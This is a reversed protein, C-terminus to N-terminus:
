EGVFEETESTTAHVVRAAQCTDGPQFGHSAHGDCEVTPESSSADLSGLCLDDLDVVCVGSSFASGSFRAMTGLSHKTDQGSDSAV